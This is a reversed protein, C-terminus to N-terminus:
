SPSRTFAIASTYHGLINLLRFEWAGSPFIANRTSLKPYRDPGELTFGITGPDVSLGLGCGKLYAEKLVWHKLLGAKKEAEPAQELDWQEEDTLTGAALLSVDLEGQNDEVDVGIEGSTSVACLVLSASRSLSFNLATYGRQNCVQTEIAPSVVPRGLATQVFQWASPAVDAYQSLVSRVLIRTARYLRRDRDFRLRGLSQQESPSLLTGGTLHDPSLTSIANVDIAWLDFPAADHRLLHCTLSIQSCLVDRVSWGAGAVSTSKLIAPPSLSRLM